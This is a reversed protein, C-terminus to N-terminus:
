PPLNGHIRNIYQFFILRVFGKFESTTNERSMSYREYCNRFHKAFMEHVSCDTDKKVRVQRIRPYGMLLNEFAVFQDTQEAIITSNTRGHLGYLFTTELYRWFDLVTKMELYQFHYDIEMVDTNRDVFVQQMTKM